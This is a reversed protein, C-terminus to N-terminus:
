AGRPRLVVRWLERGAPRPRCTVDRPRGAPRAGNRMPVAHALHEELLGPASSRPPSRLSEAGGKDVESLHRDPELAAALPRRGRELHVTVRGGRGRSCAERMACRWTTERPVRVRRENGQFSHPQWGTQPVWRAFFAANVQSPHTRFAVGVSPRQSAVPPSRPPFSWWCARPTAASAHTPPM